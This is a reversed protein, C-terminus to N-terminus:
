ENFGFNKRRHRQHKWQPDSMAEADTPASSARFLHEPGGADTIADQLLIHSGPFVTFNGELDRTVDSLAIGVLMTFNRVGGEDEGGGIPAKPLLPSPWGDVHWRKEWTPLLTFEIDYEEAAFQAGGQQRQWEHLARVGTNLLMQGIAGGVGGGANPSPVCLAGPHRLAIQGFYTRSVPQGILGLACGLAESERLLDTIEPKVTCEPASTLLKPVHKFPSDPPLESGLSRNIVRLARQVQAPQVAGRVVCYGDRVFDARHQEQLLTSMMSDTKDVTFGEIANTWPNRPPGNPHQQQPQHQLQQQQQQQPQHSRQPSQPQQPPQQSQQQHFQQLNLLQQLQNQQPNPPQTQQQTQQQGWQTNQQQQQQQQQQEQMANLFGSWAELGRGRGGGRGRGRGRGRGIEGGSAWTNSNYSM